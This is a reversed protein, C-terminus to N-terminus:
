LKYLSALKIVNGDLTLNKLSFIRETGPELATYLRIEEIQNFGVNLIEVSTQPILLENIIFAFGLESLRNHSLNVMKLDNGGRRNMCRDIIKGIAQGGRQGEIRNYSLDIEQLYKYEQLADALM